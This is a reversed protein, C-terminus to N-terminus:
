MFTETTVHNTNREEGETESVITNIAKRLKEKSMPTNKRDNHEIMM